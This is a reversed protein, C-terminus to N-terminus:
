KTSIDIGACEEDSMETVPLKVTVTKPLDVADETLSLDVAEAPDRLEVTVAREPLDESFLELNDEVFSALEKPDVIAATM